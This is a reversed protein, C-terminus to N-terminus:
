HTGSGECSGSCPVCEARLIGLQGTRNNTASPKGGGGLKQLEVKSLSRLGIEAYVTRPLPLNLCSSEPFCSWPGPQSCCPLSYPLSGKQFQSWLNPSSTFPRQLFPPLQTIFDTSIFARAGRGAQQYSVLGLKIGRAWGCHPQSDSVLIRHGLKPRSPPFSLTCFKTTTAPPTPLAPPWPHCWPCRIELSMPLQRAQGSLKM